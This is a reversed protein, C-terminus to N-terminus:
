KTNLARKLKMLLTILLYFFVAAGIMVPIFWYGLVESYGVNDQAMGIVQFKEDLFYMGVQSPYVIKAFVLFVFSSLMLYLFAFIIYSIGNGINLALAKFVHIPNFSKVAQDMKKDAVLPQLVKEPEGLKDIVDLLCDMENGATKRQLGEYIHSNFEMLVDEREASPLTKVAHGIRKLYNNYVRETSKDKFKLKEVKM